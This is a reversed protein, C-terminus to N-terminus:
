PKQEMAGIANNLTESLSPRTGKALVRTSSYWKSRIELPPVAFSSAFVLYLGESKPYEKKELYM